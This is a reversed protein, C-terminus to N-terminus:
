AHAHGAAETKDGPADDLCEDLARWALMACKIRSPFRRVGQLASLKGLAAEQEEQPPDTRTLLDHMAASLRKAEAVPRGKVAETMLSASAICIACGEGEFAIDGVVGERQALQLSVKDGCLPNYGTALRHACQLRGYNRPRRKHDLLLDQYLDDLLNM